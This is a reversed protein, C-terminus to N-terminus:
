RRAPQFGGLDADRRYRASLAGLTVPGVSSRHMVGRPQTESRRPSAPGTLSRRFRPHRRALLQQVAQEDEYAEAEIEARHDLFYAAEQPASMSLSPVSVKVFLSTLFESAPLTYGSKGRKTRGTAVV